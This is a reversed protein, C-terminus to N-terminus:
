LTTGQYKLYGGLVTCLIEIKNVTNGKSYKVDESSNRLLCNMTKLKKKKM